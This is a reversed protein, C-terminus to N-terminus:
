GGRLLGRELPPAPCFDESGSDAGRELFCSTLWFQVLPTSGTMLMTKSPRRCTAYDKERRILHAEIREIDADIKTQLGLLRQLAASLPEM